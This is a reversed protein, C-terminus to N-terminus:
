QFKKLAIALASASLVTANCRLECALFFYGLLFYPFFFNRYFLVKVFCHYGIESALSIKVAGSAEM